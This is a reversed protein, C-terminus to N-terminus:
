TQHKDRHRLSGKVNNVKNITNEQKKFKENSKKITALTRSVNFVHLMNVSRNISWMIGFNIYIWLDSFKKLSFFFCTNSLNTSWLGIYRDTFLSSMVLCLLESSLITLVTCCTDSHEASWLNMLASNCVGNSGSRELLHAARANTSPM